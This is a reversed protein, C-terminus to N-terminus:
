RAATSKVPEMQENLCLKVLVADDTHFGISNTEAKAQLGKCM